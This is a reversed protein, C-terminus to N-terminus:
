HPLFFRSIRLVCRDLSYLCYFLRRRQELVARDSLVETPPDQHLGLDVMVRAAFSVLFRPRFHVPDFLSYLTLLLIAQIGLMSGPHLVEGSYELASSVMSFAFQHNNDQNQPSLSAHSIALVMRLMWNDIPKAFRGESQYVAEVSTWFATETFFPLQSYINDFYHQIL